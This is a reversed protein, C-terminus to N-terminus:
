WGGSAGGGGFSGGGGSSGGGSSGRSSSGGISIGGITPTPGDDDDDSGWQMRYEAYRSKKSKFLRQVLAVVIGAIFGIPVLALIHLMSLNLFFIAVGPALIGGAAAPSFFNDKLMVVLLIIFVIFGLVGLPIVYPERTPGDPKDWSQYEGKVTDIVALVGDMVGQDFRGKKFRPGIVNRIIRGARLDTLSGELGYGVEIRIKREKLAILLLVGNDSGKQGIGWREAVRLSFDELSDGELSAITLVRVQTTDTRELETLAKNLYDRTNSSLMGATDNIRGKQAPVELAYLHQPAVFLILLLWALSCFPIIKRIMIM